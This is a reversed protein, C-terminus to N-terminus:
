RRGLEKLYELGPENLIDLRGDSALLLESRAKNLRSLLPGIISDGHAVFHMIDKVSIPIKYGKSSSALLVGADRLPAVVNTRFWHTSVSESRSEALMARLERTSVYSTESIFECQFYFHQLTDIQCQVNLDESGGKEKLFQAAQNLSHVRVVQDFESREGTPPVYIRAVPPWEAYTIIHASLTRLVEGLDPGNGDAAHAITGAIFDALQIVPQARSDEFRLEAEEFLSPIHQRHVYDRFGEMFSSTGHQDAIVLLDPVAGFLRRYLLGHMYKLFSRKYQLGSSKNIEAKDVVLLHCRFGLAMMDALIRDRRKWNSGVNKSKIEGAQFHRQRITEVGESLTSLEGPQAMIAAVVFHASVGEKHTDLSADGSEDVFAFLPHM